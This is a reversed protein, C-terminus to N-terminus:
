NKFHETVYVTLKGNKVESYIGVGIKKYSQNLIVKKHTASNMLSKHIANSLQTLFSTSYSSKATTSVKALDEGAKLNKTSVGYNSLVTSWSKGNPRTHSWKKVIEKSRVNGTKELTTLKAVTKNKASKKREKNVSNILNTRIKNLESTSLNRAKSKSSGVTALPTDDDEIEMTHTEITENDSDSGGTTAVELTHVVFETTEPSKPQSFHWTAFAVCIVLTCALLSIILKKNKM